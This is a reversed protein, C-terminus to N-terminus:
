KTAAKRYQELKDEPRVPKQEPLSDTPLKVLWNQPLDVTEFSGQPTKHLVRVEEELEALSEPQSLVLVTDGTFNFLAEDGTNFEPTDALMEERAAALNPESLPSARPPKDTSPNNIWLTLGITLVVVPFLIFPLVGIGMYNKNRYKMTYITIQMATYNSIKQIKYCAFM